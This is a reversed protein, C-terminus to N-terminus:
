NLVCDNDTKDDISRSVQLNGGSWAILGKDMQWSAFTQMETLMVVKILLTCNPQWKTLPKNVEQGSPINVVRLISSKKKFRVFCSLFVRTCTRRMHGSKCGRALYLEHRYLFLPTCSVGVWTETGQSAKKGAPRESLWILLPKPGSCYFFPFQLHDSNVIFARAGPAAAKIKSFFFTKM